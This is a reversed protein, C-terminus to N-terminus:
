AAVLELLMRAVREDPAEKIDQLLLDLVEAKKVQPVKQQALEALPPFRLEVAIMVAVQLGEARGAARGRAEGKAEGEARGKAEGEARGKIECDKRIKKMKPDNEILDDFMTLREEITQKDELPLFDARRLIIGMWFLEQILKNTDDQYYQIMEDIAQNLLAANAGQMTPLLAYMAVAREQLYDEIRHQWLPLTEFHFILLTKGVSEVILPSIAMETEFPYVIISLVPYGYKAYLHAHYELLRRAMFPKSGSEFELHLIHIKGEYLVKYVRDVRLPARLVEINLTALYKVGAVLRPLIQEEQGEVLAKLMHDYPQLQSRSFIRSFKKRAM